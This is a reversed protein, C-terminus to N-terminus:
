EEKKLIEIHRKLRQVDLSLTGNYVGRIRGKKDVLIFNETHIFESEDKTKKFDEDAFYSTRAIKYIAKKDGTVLHWKNDIANKEKAYEKIKDVTDVWPMVSHSLLLINDDSKYTEQITNMNKSLIPCISPCTTFFFDTIYIKGEFDKNTIKKGNQNIFEFPAVTHIKSYNDDNESIWEPTFDESNYFPLVKSKDVSTEKKCSICVIFLLIILKFKM